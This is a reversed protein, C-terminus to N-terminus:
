GRKDLKARLKAMKFDSNDPIAENWVKRYHDLYMEEKVVSYTVEFYNDPASNMFILTKWGGFIYAFWVTVLDLEKIYQGDELLDINNAYEVIAEKARDQPDM